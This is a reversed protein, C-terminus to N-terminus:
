EAAAVEMVGTATRAQFEPRYMDEVVAAPHAYTGPTVARVVYAVTMERPSNGNRDFAAVFRDDRFETHVDDDSELWDFNSLDASGVLHPNDIEFGAPLLDTILVRSPWANLETAKLVVVYRKNQEAESVNVENGDMDYYAREISFGNGGAPLPQAPAAVTTVVAEVKDNGTNTIAIPNALLEQGTVRRAFSGSHPTGDIELKIADAGADVARAALLLWADEQTSTYWRDARTEAVYNVLEPLLTLKPKSEAALALMAAGDRLASGYDGRALTPSDSSKALRLASAFARQAREVDGYLALSAGLQARAMPSPFLELQTDVFYRLDGIAAKRNRALVYFAYAIENGRGEIDLDYAVSNQLNQLALKMAEEPVKYEQERARTFFDTIYADLWLDGYGPGWLGFSGSSSQYSVDTYIADQIRKKLDPDVELGAEASLQNVYLLPLARSTTQEACGYPYRDLSMLLSPVDLAAVPSIGVSVSAGDLMSDALLEKDVILKNGAALNVTRRTTVPMSAPRVNMALHHEVTTGTDNVLTIDINGNGTEAASIPLEVTTREGKDLTLTLTSDADVKVVGDTAVNLRYDGAPGDTNAIDLRMTAEDGPAMFRPLGATVVVPERVVVDTQGHGVGNKTWAVAMVRVTGNFQPIDFSVTAKGDADLKVPGSFFAVLKETPPSGQIAMGGGDGGTRIRGMAGLSGDILRGYIDRIELGLRRQGFYWDDPSPPEYATLNLIGVDVAAVTVWAQQDVGAGEVSVPIVLPQLPETKQPPDLKVQLDRAGPDVTLWKVGIARMPMRSEEASGPRFLTATVYAGAGWEQKVPIDLTTGGEPVDASVTDLLRDAGITVLVHGAFRPSIELHAVDGPAYHERDLAIELGDPTETSTQSVFWGASFELSSAPGAADDSELELRYRGWTVPASITPEANASADVTGDAVKTTYTVPEYNWTNNTRYWQYNREIKLLRWHLGAMDQRKGDPDVAIVRFAATSGEPVEDGSFEPRIGIMTDEPKVALDVTREVARGAGERMRVVVSAKLPRTTSPAEDVTVDFSAKGDEGTDPLDDLPLVKNIDDDSEDALGFVYGTYGARERVASLRVEGELKLGAAPAGYLFRGDVTVDTPEGLTLTDGASALDFEIRDPVFDEVLFTAEAVAPEDPDTHIEVRWTGRMANSQLDFDVAHGGLGADSAVVRRDEVGDPRNFVFTLPLNEVADASDDRTLAAVHVTEGARYIGRETWAFVDLAGPAARGTVGRDSLDFGARTMDLFVFDGAAGRAMLVAPVMGGTGRTLGATFSAKGDADTTATGLVENNRALLTLETGALPEATDLSRAFVTLADAGAFTSLGIDSVVFWQTAKSEWYQSKDGEPKATM